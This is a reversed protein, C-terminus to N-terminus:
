RELFERIDLSEYRTGDFYVAFMKLGLKEAAAQAREPGLVFLATSTSDTTVGLPAAVTLSQFGRAPYGTRPDLIHHYRVGNEIFYREYDGSTSVSINELALVGALNNRDGRPARIGVRWKGGDPRRGMARIDGACAVLASKIGRASLVAAARDAAYGKAIGGLDMLMGREKLMVTSAAADLVVKRYDVLHLRQKIEADPPRTKKAFDWLVSVAGVTPDFAGDTASAADLAAKVLELTEPSVKVPAIGAAANVASLESKPDFFDILAGIRKLEAFAAEIAAEAEAESASSVTITVATDMLLRTDKYLTPEHAQCGCVASLVFAAFFAAYLTSSFFNRCFVFFNERPSACIRLSSLFPLPFSSANIM